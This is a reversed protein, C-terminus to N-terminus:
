GCVPVFNRALQLVDADEEEDDSVLNSLDAYSYKCKKGVARQPMNAFNVLSMPLVLVEMEKVLEKDLEDRRM